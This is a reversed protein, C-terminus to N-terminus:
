KSGSYVTVYKASHRKYHQVFPARPISLVQSSPQPRHRAHLLPFAYQLTPSPIKLPKSNTPTFSLINNFYIKHATNNHSTVPVRQPSKHYSHQINTNWLIDSLKKPLHAFTLKELLVRSCTTLTVSFPLMVNWFHRRTEVLSCPTVDCFM